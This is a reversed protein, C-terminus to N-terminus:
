DNKIEEMLASLDIGAADWKSKIPDVNYHGVVGKFGGDFAQQSFDHTNPAELPINLNICLSKLLKKLSSIQEPYYGLFNKYSKGNSVWKKIIPRPSLGKSTYFKNYKEEMPSNVEIGISFSNVNGAHQASYVLDTSQYIKGDYDIMFHISLGRRELVNYCSHSTLCADHHVVIMKVEHGHRDRYKGGSALLSGPENMGVFLEKDIDIEFSKADNYIVSKKKLASEKAKQQEIWIAAKMERDNKISKFTKPGCLGDVVLKNLSQFKKIEEVLKDDFCTSNFWSPNWGLHSASAQNYFNKDIM